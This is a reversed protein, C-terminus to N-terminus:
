VQSEIVFIILSDYHWDTSLALYFIDGAAPELHCTNRVLMHNVIIFLYYIMKAEWFPACIYVMSLNTICHCIDLLKM